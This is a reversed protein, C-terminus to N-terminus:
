ASCRGGGDPRQLWRRAQDLDAPSNVNWFPDFLAAADTGPWALEALPEIALFQKFGALGEENVARELRPLLRRSWIATAPQLAGRHRIVAGPKGSDTAQRLLREALEVPLFPTDCPVLLLWEPGDVTELRRLVGLLGVLPGAHGPM